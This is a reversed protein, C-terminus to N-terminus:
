VALPLREQTPQAFSNLKRAASRVFESVIRSDDDARATIYTNLALREDALPRMTIGDRSIRWAGARTLFAIAQRDLILPTAEEATTVHQTDLPVAGDALASRQLRDYVPPNVHREFLIWHREHLDSLHLERLRALPDRSELAIYLPVTAVKLSSLGATDGAGTLIAVDLVGSLVHHILTPSFNSSLNIKLHPYLPLRISLVTSVLFPDTYPSKGLRLVAEANEARGRASHVAREAYVVAKRADEVFAQGAETVEVIQKNRRFLERGVREELDQIQKTLASQTIGLRIAARSFNLEEAVAIAAQMLRIDVM